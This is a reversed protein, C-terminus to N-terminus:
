KGKILVLPAKEMDMKLYTFSKGEITMEKTEVM